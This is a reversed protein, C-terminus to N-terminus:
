VEAFYVDGADWLRDAELLTGSEDFLVGESALLAAQDDMHRTLAAATTLVRHAPLGTRAARRLYTPLVRSYPRAAGILQILTAYTVVSGYPIRAVLWALREYIAEPVEPYVAARVAVRDGVSIEGGTLFVGLSGRQGPLNRFAESPVYRRLIKCVECEHTIRVGTEAGVELVSGSALAEASLGQVAINARVQWIALKHCELDEQRVVLVQRPGLPQAHCDGVLGRRAVVSVLNRSQMPAHRAPKTMLATVFPGSGSLGSVDIVNQVLV